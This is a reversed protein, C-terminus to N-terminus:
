EISFWQTTKSGDKMLIVIKNIYNQGEITISDIYKDIGTKPKPKLGLTWISSNEQYYFDFTSDLKSYKKNSIALIIENIQEYDKTTYSTSSKIPYTTEFFIGTKKDFKFSGGSILPKDINKLIREQKFKCEINNLEPLKDALSKAEIKCDYVAANCSLTLLLFFVPLYILKNKM